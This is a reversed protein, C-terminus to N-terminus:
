KLQITLILLPFNQNIPHKKKVPNKTNFTSVKSKDKSSVKVPKKVNPTSIESKDKNFTSLKSKDLIEIVSDGVKASDIFPYIVKPLNDTWPM